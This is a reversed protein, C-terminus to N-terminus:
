PLGTQGSSAALPRLYPNSRPFLLIWRASQRTTVEVNGTDDSIRNTGLVTVGVAGLVLEVDPSDDNVVPGIGVALVVRADDGVDAGEAGADPVGPAVIAPATTPGM